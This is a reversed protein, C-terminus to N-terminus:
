RLIGSQNKRSSMLDFPLVLILSSGGASSRPILQKIRVGTDRTQKLVVNFWLRRGAHSDVRQVHGAALDPLSGRHTPEIRHQASGEHRHHSAEREAREEERRQKKGEGREADGRVDARMAGGRWGSPLRGTPM